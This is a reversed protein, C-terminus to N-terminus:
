KSAPKHHPPSRRGGYEGRGRHRGGGSYFHGGDGGNQEMKPGRGYRPFRQPKSGMQSNAHNSLPVSSSNNVTREHSSSNSNPMDKPGTTQASTKNGSPKSPEPNEAQNAKAASMKAIVQAYSLRPPPIGDQLVVILTLLSSNFLLFSWKSIWQQELLSLYKPAAYVFVNAIYEFMKKFLHLLANRM